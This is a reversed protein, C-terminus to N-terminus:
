HLDIHRLAADINLALAERLLGLASSIVTGGVGIAAAWAMPGPNLPVPQVLRQLAEVVVVTGAAVILLGNILSALQTSRGFGYSFRGSPPQQSFREAGWGLALGVVDWTTSPM